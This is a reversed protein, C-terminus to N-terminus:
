LKRLRYYMMTESPSVTLRNNVAGSVATWDPASLSGTGELSYGALGEPWTIVVMGSQLRISLNPQVAAPRILPMGYKSALYSVLLDREAATLARNYILLECLDGKMQPVFDDRSGIRLPGGEDVAGYGHVGTGISQDFLYHAANAVEVQFGAVLYQGAPLGSAAAVPANGDPTGRSVTPIGTGATLYYDRPRPNAGVCKSWVSRAAAFDDFMAVYFSSIDATIAVSPSTAVDLYRLEGDFRLAPKGNVANAVLVPAYAETEQVADNHNGSQDAWATVAGGSETVGADAKLWLQLGDTPPAAPGTGTITLTVPASTGRAGWNDTAIAKLTVVGPTRLEVPLEYPATPVSAIVVDNAAFEVQEVTGDTDTATAKLVLLDPASATTGPAPSVLSVTPVDNAIRWLPIGYKGALYTVLNTRDTASLAHAYLLVEAIDGKMQTARDDRTGIVLPMGAGEPVATITGSGNPQGNLYHTLTTGAADLGVVAHLGAPVGARGAVAGYGAGGGRFANPVGTGPAFWCDFPRALNNLTQTWVARYTGFDDFKVVYFTTLDGTVTATPSDMVELYRSAGDFRLVPKGNLASPVLVPAADPNWQSADNGQGSQDAWGIVANGAGTTVGADAKLWLNLDGTPPASPAVGTIQISVPASTGRTGWNDTAIATLAVQGPSLFDIALQYPSNTLSAILAGNALLDVQRVTGDSDTATAAITVTTPLAFTAGDTPSTLRVVPSQNGLRVFAIGYKAALYYLVTTRDAASLATNYILLEALDGKMQTVLDDRSGIRLPMGSDEPTLTINAPRDAQGNLYHTVVQGAVDFGVVALQGAPVAFTSLVGQPPTAGTDARYLVAVGNGTNLYYDNPEPRSGVTKSWIGRWTAFDDAKLVVFTTLDGALALSASSNVDLYQPAGTFRVVPQNNVAGGVWFPAQGADWQYADNMQGSQDAWATVTGDANTTVGTDAKLWLALEGSVPAAPATGTANVVVPASTTQRGGLPGNDLAVATLTASGPTLLELNLQYPPTTSSAVVVGNALFDVRAIQGDPDTASVVMTVSGPATVTTDPAPSTISVTPPQNFALAYKDHLYTIVANRDADSLAVDYLLLEALDGKLQTVLDDRSGIRLPLGSDEAPNALNITGRGNVQDNFYHAITTGAVDFGVVAFQAPPVAAAGDAALWQSANGRYLRPINNNPLFYYDTPRPKNGLVKSWVARYGSMDALRIVFFTSLDGVFSVTPSNAVDMYKTGGEFRLVPKGNLVNEVLRPASSATPQAANNGQGSQDAWGTVNGNADATVGADAMLWLQLNAKPPEAAQVWPGTAPALWLLAAGVLSKTTSRYFLPVFVCPTQKMATQASIAFNM